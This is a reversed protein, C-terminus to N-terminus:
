DLPAIKKLEKGHRALDWDETLESAHLDVWERVLRTATRSELDGKLINGKFDFVAQKGQFEAHFHPPSHEEYYMRIIVGFFISLVPM